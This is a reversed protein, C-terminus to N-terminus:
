KIGLSVRTTRIGAEESIGPVMCAIFLESAKIAKAIARRWNQGPLLDKKDLWPRYGRSRLREYLDLVQAEDEKAHALFIQIGEAGPPLPLAAESRSPSRGYGFSEVPGDLRSPSLISPLPAISGLSKLLQGMGCGTLSAAWALLAAARDGQAVFNSPLVSQPADLAFVLAEFDPSMLANIQRILALRQEPTLKM